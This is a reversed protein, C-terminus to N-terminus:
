IITGFTPRAEWGALLEIWLNRLNRLNQPPSRATRPAQTLYSGEGRNNTKAETM